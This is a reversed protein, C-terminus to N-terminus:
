DATASYLYCSFCVINVWMYSDYIYMYIYYVRLDHLVECRMCISPARSEQEIAAAKALHLERKILIFDSDSESESEPEYESESQSYSVCKGVSWSVPSIQQSFLPGWSRVPTFLLVSLLLLNLSVRAPLM